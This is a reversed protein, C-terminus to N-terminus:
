RDAEKEQAIEMHWAAMGRALERTYGPVQIFASALEQLEQASSTRAIHSWYQRAYDYGREFDSLDKRNMNEGLDLSRGPVPSGPLCGTKPSILFRM